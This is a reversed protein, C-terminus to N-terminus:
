EGQWGGMTPFLWFYVSHLWFTTLIYDFHLWFIFSHQWFITLLWSITSLFQYTILIPQYAISDLFGVNAFIKRERQCLTKALFCEPMFFTCWPRKHRNLSIDAIIVQTQINNIFNINNLVEGSVLGWITAQGKGERNPGESETGDCRWWCSWKLHIYVRVDVIM